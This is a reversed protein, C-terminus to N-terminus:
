QLGEFPSAPSRAAALQVSASSPHAQFALDSNCLSSNLGLALAAQRFHSGVHEQGPNGVLVMRVRDIGSATALKLERGLEASPRNMHLPLERLLM